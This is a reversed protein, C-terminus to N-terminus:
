SQENEHHTTEETERFLSLRTRLVVFSCRNAPVFWLHQTSFLNLLRRPCQKMACERSRGYASVEEFMPM